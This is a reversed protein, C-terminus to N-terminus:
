FILLQLELQLQFVTVPIVSSVDGTSHAPEMKQRQCDIRLEAFKRVSKKRFGSRWGM